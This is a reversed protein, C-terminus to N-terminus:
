STRTSLYIRVVRPPLPNSDNSSPPPMFVAGVSTIYFSVSQILALGFRELYKRIAEFRARALSSAKEKEAPDEVLYLLYRPKAMSKESFFLFSGGVGDLLKLSGPSLESSGQEFFIEAVARDPPPVYAVTLCPM